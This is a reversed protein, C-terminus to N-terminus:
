EELCCKGLTEQTDWFNNCKISEKIDNVRKRPFLNLTIDEVREVWRNKSNKRWSILILKSGSLLWKISDDQKEELMKKKHDAHRAGACSQVGLLMGPGIGIIDIISYLDVRIKAAQIWREVVAATWGNKRL